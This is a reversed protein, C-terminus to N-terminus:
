ALVGEDKGEAIQGTTYFGYSLTNDKVPCM